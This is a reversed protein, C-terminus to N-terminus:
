HFLPQTEALVKKVERASVFPDHKSMVALVHLAWQTQKSQQRFPLDERFEPVIGMAIARRVIFTDDRYYSRTCVM